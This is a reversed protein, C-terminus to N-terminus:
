SDVLASDNASISSNKQMLLKSYIQELKKVNKAETAKMIKLLDVFWILWALLHPILLSFLSYCQANDHTDCAIMLPIFLLSLAICILMVLLKFLAIKYTGIYFRDIALYGLFFSLALALIPHRKAAQYEQELAIMEANSLKSRIEKLLSEAPKLM